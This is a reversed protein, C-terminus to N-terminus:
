ACTKRYAPIASPNAPIRIPGTSHSLRLSTGIYRPNTHLKKVAGTIAKRTKMTPLRRFQALIVAAGDVRGKGWHAELTKKTLPIDYHDALIAVVVFGLNHPTAAYKSGPNGLGVILWPKTSANRNERAPM